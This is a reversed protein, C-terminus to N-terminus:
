IFWEKGLLEGIEYHKELDDSFSTIFSKASFKMSQKRSQGKALQQPLTEALIIKSRTALREIRIAGGSETSSSKRRPVENTVHYGLDVHSPLGAMMM